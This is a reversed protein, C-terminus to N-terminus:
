LNDPTKSALAARAIQVPEGFTFYDMAAIAELAARLQDRETEMAVVHAMVVRYVDTAVDRPVQSYLDYLAVVVQRRLEEIM